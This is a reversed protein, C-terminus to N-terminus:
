NKDFFCKVKKFWTSAQPSHHSATDASMSKNFEDLLEKQKKTLNVPTEVLIRCLLDGPGQGRITKVGKGRIKFLRDTQTEPPVKLKVRGELTPVDLEGGLAAMAFSVPVECYLDTGERKFIDHEKIYMQVYLDGAPGGYVGAEGEGALRIRDNNDVGAPIRVSLTKTEHVRGEGRCQTCPDAIIEGAGRCASCTQQIAFFGQQIRVQGMGQCTTCTKPKSGSKAGTGKCGSCGVLTPIKVTVTHGKVAEELTMELNYRLDAGQQARSGGQQRGGSRGGFIDGFIDGFVDGFNSAGGGFGGPGASQDVGAHGFQDYASRKRSDSLVEYAETLTKFKEEASKDGANRDPHYKMALKRYAKKVEAESANHAVGLTEYYDAKTAM